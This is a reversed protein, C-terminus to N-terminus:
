GGDGFDHGVPDFRELNRDHEVPSSRWWHRPAPRGPWSQRNQAGIASAVSVVGLTGSSTASPPSSAIAARAPHGIQGLAAVCPGTTSSRSTTGPAGTRRRCEAACRFGGHGRCRSCAISRWRWRVPARPLGEFLGDLAGERRRARRAAPRAPSQRAPIARHAVVRDGTRSFLFPARSTGARRRVDSSAWWSRCPRFLDAVLGV